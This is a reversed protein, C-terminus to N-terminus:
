QKKKKRAWKNLQNKFSLQKSKSNKKRLTTRQQRTELWRKTIPKWRQEDILWFASCIEIERAMLRVEKEKLRRMTQIAKQPDKVLGSKVATKYVEIATHLEALEEKIEILAKKGEFLKKVEQRTKRDKRWDDLPKDRKIRDLQRSISGRSDLSWNFSPGLRILAPDFSQSSSSSYLPPASVTLNARPVYRFYTDLIRGDSAINELALLNLQLLGWRSTDAFDLDSPAYLINPIGNPNLYIDSYGAMFFDGVKTEWDSINKEWSEYSKEHKLKMALTEAGDAGTIGKLIEAELDLAQKEIRHLKQQQFLRYLAIVQQRMSSEAQLASGLYTLKNTYITKPLTLLNGLSVFSNIRFSSDSFLSGIDKITASDSLGVSVGPIMNTWVQKQRDKSDALRYDAQILTPNTLYMKELGQNWTIKLSEGASGNQHLKVQNLYDNSIDNRAEEVRVTSSKMWICSPLLCSVILLTSLLTKRHPQSSM